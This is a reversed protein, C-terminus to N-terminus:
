GGINKVDAQKSPIMYQSANQGRLINSIGSLYDNQRKPQTSAARKARLQALKDAYLTDGRNAIDLKFVGSDEMDKLVSSVAGTDMSMKFQAKVHRELVKLNEQVIPDPKDSMSVYRAPDAQVYADMAQEVLNDYTVKPLGGTASNLEADLMGAVVDEHNLLFDRYISEKDTKNIIEQATDSIPSIVSLAANVGSTVASTVSSMGVTNKFLEKFKDNETPNYANQYSQINDYVSALNASTVDPNASFRSADKTLNSYAEKNRDNLNGLKSVAEIAAKNKYTPSSEGNRIQTQTTWLNQLTVSNDFESKTIRDSKRGGPATLFYGGDKSHVISLSAVNDNTIGLKVMQNHVFKDEPALEGQSGKAIVNELLAKKGAVGTAYSATSRALEIGRSLEPTLVGRDQLDELEGKIQPWITSFIKPDSSALRSTIEIFATPDGNKVLAARANNILGLQSNVEKYKKGQAIAKSTSVNLTALEADQELEAKKITHELNLMKLANDKLQYSAADQLIKNHQFEAQNSQVYDLNRQQKIGDQQAILGRNYRDLQDVVVEDQRHKHLNLRALDNAILNGAVQTELLANNTESQNLASVKNAVNINFYPDINLPDAM